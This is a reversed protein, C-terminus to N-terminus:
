IGHLIIMLGSAQWPDGTGITMTSGNNKELRLGMRIYLLFPFLSEDSRPVQEWQAPAM